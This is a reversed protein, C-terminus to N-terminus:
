THTHTIHVSSCIDGIWYEPHKIIDELTELEAAVNVIEMKSKEPHKIYHQKRRGSKRSKNKNKVVQKEHNIKTIHLNKLGIENYKVM